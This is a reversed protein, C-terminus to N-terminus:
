DLCGYGVVKVVDVFVDVWGFCDFGYYGGVVGILWFFYSVEDDKEVGIVGVENWVCVNGDIVGFVGLGLLFIIWLWWDVEGVKGFVCGLRGCGCLGCM